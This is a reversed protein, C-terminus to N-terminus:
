PLVENLEERLNSLEKSVKDINKSDKIDSFAKNFLLLLAKFIKSLRGHELEDFKVLIDQNNKLEALLSKIQKDVKEIDNSIKISELNKNLSIVQKELETIIKESNDVPLKSEVLKISNKLESILKKVEEINTKKKVEELKSLIKSFDIDKDLKKNIIDLKPKLNPISNKVLEIYSKIKKYDFEIKPIKVMDKSVDFESKAMLEEEATRGSSVEYDWIKIKELEKTVGKIIAKIDNETVGIGPSPRAGGYKDATLRVVMVESARPAM